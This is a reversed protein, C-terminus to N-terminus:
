PGQQYQLVQGPHILNTDLGNVTRLMEVTDRLDEDVTLRSAILWLSDGEQVVTSGALVTSPAQTGAWVEQTSIGIVGVGASIAALISVALARALRGRRTLRIHGESLGTSEQRIPGWLAVPYTTAM